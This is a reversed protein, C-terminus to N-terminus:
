SVKKILGYSGTNNKFLTFPVFYGPRKNVNIEIDSLMNEYRTANREYLLRGAYVSGYVDSEINLVGACYVDGVILSNSGITVKNNRMARVPFGFSIVAGMIRCDKNIKLNTEKLDPNYICIVSPYSLDVNEGVNIEDFAFCQLTGKFGAKFTVKPAILIIDEVSCSKNLVIETDSYLIFNGKIHLDQQVVSSLKIEITPKDFSNYYLSDNIKELSQLEVTNKRKATIFDRIAPNLQPLLKDSASIVGETVLKSHMNNLRVPSTKLTPLKQDGVLTVDGAYLLPTNYDPLYLCTKDSPYQGTFHVSTVTDNKAVNSVKLLTLLGHRQTEFFAGGANHVEVSGPNDINGLAYNVVSQNDIYLEEHVLYHLNLQNYLNAIFLMAGCILSVVLCVYVAYLLSHAKLM